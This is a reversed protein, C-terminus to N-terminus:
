NYNLTLSWIKAAKNGYVFEDTTTPLAVTIENWTNQMRQNKYKNMGITKFSDRPILINWTQLKQKSYQPIYSNIGSTLNQSVDIIGTDQYDNKIRLKEVASIQFGRKTETYGAMDTTNSYALKRQDIPTNKTYLGGSYSISYLTKNKDIEQNHIITFSVQSCIPINKTKFGDRIIFQYFQSYKGTHMQYIKNDESISYQTNGIFFWYPSYWYDYYSTFEGLLESYALCRPIKDDDLYYMRKLTLNEDSREIANSAQKDGGDLIYLENYHANYRLKAGSNYYPNWKDYNFHQLASKNFKMLGMASVKDGQISYLEKHTNSLLYLGNTTQLVKENDNCGVEAIIYDGTFSPNRAMQLYQTSSPISSTQNFGVKFIAKDTFAYVANDISKLSNIAGYEGNLYYTQINNNSLNLWRDNLENPQKPGLAIIENKLETGKIEAENYQQFQLFSRRDNFVNNIKVQDAEKFDWSKNLLTSLNFNEYYLSLQTELPCIVYSNVSCPNSAPDYSKYSMIQADTATDGYVSSVKATFNDNGNVNAVEYLYQSITTDGIDLIFSQGHIFNEKSFYLKYVPVSQAEIWNQNNVNYTVKKQLLELIPTTSDDNANLWAYPGVYGALNPANNDVNIPFYCLISKQKRPNKWTCTITRKARDETQYGLSYSFGNANPKGFDNVNFTTNYLNTIGMYSPYINNADRYAYGSDTINMFKFTPLHLYLGTTLINIDLVYDLLAPYLFKNIVFAKQDISGRSQAWWMNNQPSYCFYDTLVNDSTGTDGSYKWAYNGYNAHGLVYLPVNSNTGTNNYACISHFLLGAYCLQLNNMSMLSNDAFGIDASILEGVNPALRVINFDGDSFARQSQATNMTGDFLYPYDTFFCSANSVFGDSRSVSYNYENNYKLGIDLYNTSSNIKKEWLKSFPRIPQCFNYRQYNDKTYGPRFFTMPACFSNKSDKNCDSIIGQFRLYNTYYFQIAPLFACQAFIKKESPENQLFYFKISVVNANKLLKLGSPLIRIYIIYKKTYYKGNNETVATNNYSPIKVTFGQSNYALPIIDSINGKDYYLQYGLRYQEGSKFYYKTNNIVTQPEACFGEYNLNSNSSNSVIVQKEQSFTIDVMTKDLKVIEEVASNSSYKNNGLLLYESNTSIANSIINLSSLQINNITDAEGNNYDIFTVFYKDGERTATKLNINANSKYVSQVITEGYYSERSFSYLKIYEYADKITQDFYVKVTIAKNLVTDPANPKGDYNAIEYKINDLICNTTIGYADLFICGYSRISPKFTGGGDQVYVNFSISSLQSNISSLTNVKYVGNYENIKISTLYNIGDIFYLKHLVESEYYSVIQLPHEKNFNLNEEALTKIQYSTNSITVEFVLDKPDVIRNNKAFFLYLKNQVYYCGILTHTSSPPFGYTTPSYSTVNPKQTCTCLTTGQENELVYTGADKDTVIRMNYMRRAYDSEQTHFSYDCRSGKINFQQKKM